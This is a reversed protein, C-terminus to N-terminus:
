PLLSILTALAEQKATLVKRLDEQAVTLKAEKDKKSARFKELAAKIQAAPANDDIAKQLAEAEPSPAGFFSSPRREAGSQPASSSENSHRRFLSSMGSTLTERRLDMVKQVLPQVAVWEAEDKFGLRDKVGDM